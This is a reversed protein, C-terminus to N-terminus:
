TAIKPIGKGKVIGMFVLLIAQIFLVIITAYLGAMGLWTAVVGGIVSGALIIVAGILVNWLSMKTSLMGFLALVLIQIIGTLLSAILGTFGFPLMPIIFAALFGGLFLFLVTFLISGVELKM